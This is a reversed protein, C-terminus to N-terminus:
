RVGTLVFLVGAEGQDYKGSGITTGVLNGAPTISVGAQPADGDAGDFNYLVTYNGAADLKYVVGCNATGGRATTGYLNGASDRTVGAIPNDGGNGGRFNHLVTFHASADLKYLMGATLTTGGGGSDTSLGGTTGYLGDPALILGNPYTFRERFRYLVTYNGDVDLKYVVGGGYGGGQATTGYLNGASDRVVGAEPEGGDDGGTFSYLTTYNGASDLKYVAGAATGYPVTGYLNGDSDLIVDSSPGDTFNQLVTYNGAPDLKYVVGQGTDNAAAGYLNRASDLVVRSSPRMGGTFNYLVKYYQHATDWKYVVGYDATGGTGGIPATGYIGDPALTVGATPNMGTAVTFNHLVTEQVQAQVPALTMVALACAVALRMQLMTGM